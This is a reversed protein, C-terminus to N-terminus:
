PNALVFGHALGQSILEQNNTILDCQVVPTAFDRDNTLLMANEIKCIEALIYDNPDMTQKDLSAIFSQVVDCPIRTERCVIGENGMIQEFVQKYVQSRTIQEAPDHRYPKLELKKGNPPNLNYLKRDNKVFDNEMEMLVHTTIHLKISNLFMTRIFQHYVHYIHASPNPILGSNPYYMDVIANTDAYIPKTMNGWDIPNALNYLYAM